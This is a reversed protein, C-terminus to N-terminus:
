FLACGLSLWCMRAVQIVEGWGAARQQLICSTERQVEQRGLQALDDECEGHARDSRSRTLRLRALSKDVLPFSSLLFSGCTAEKRASVVGDLAFEYSQCM